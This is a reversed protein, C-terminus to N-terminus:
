NILCLCLKVSLAFNLIKMYFYDIDETVVAKFTRSDTFLGCISTFRLFKVNSGPFFCKNRSVDKVLM